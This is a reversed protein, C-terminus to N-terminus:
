FMSSNQNKNKKLTNPKYGCIKFFLFSTASLRLFLHSGPDTVEGKEM